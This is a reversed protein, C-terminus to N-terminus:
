STRGEKELAGIEASLADKFDRSFPNIELYADRDTIGLAKCMIETVGQELMGRLVALRAARAIERVTEPNPPQGMGVAYGLNAIRLSLLVWLAEDIIDTDTPTTM